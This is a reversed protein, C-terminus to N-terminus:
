LAFRRHGPVLTTSGDVDQSSGETDIPWFPDSDDKGTVIDGVLIRDWSQLTNFERLEREFRPTDPYSENKGELYPM